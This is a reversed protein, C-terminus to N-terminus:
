YVNSLGLTKAPDLLGNSGILADYIHNARDELEAFCELIPNTIREEYRIVTEEVMRDFIVKTDEFYLHVYNRFFGLRISTASEFSEESTTMHQMALLQLHMMELFLAQGALLMKEQNGPYRSQVHSFTIAYAIADAFCEELVTSNESVISKQERILEVYDQTQFIHEYATYIESLLLKIEDVMDPLPLSINGNVEFNSSINFLWHGLEHGIIYQEQIDLFFDWDAQYRNAMEFRGLAVKNLGYYSLLIEDDELLADEAFLEYSLKWIDHGPNEDDFYLANFLRFIEKLHIDYLLYYKYHNTRIRVPLLSSYKDYTNCLVFTPIYAESQNNVVLNLCEKYLKKLKAEEPGSPAGYPINRRANGIFALVMSDTTM